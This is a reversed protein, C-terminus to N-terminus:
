SKLNFGMKHLDDWFHPYSKEVVEPDTITINEFRLALAAFAMAMRHDGYTLIESKPDPIESQLSSISLSSNTHDILFGCKNLESRLALLRDSEKIVLNQLGTFSVEVNLGAAVVVLAPALDLSDGLDFGKTSKTGKHNLFKGFSLEEKEKEEKEEERERKEREKGVLIGLEVDESIVGFSKMISDVVCDGQLSELSLGELLVEAEESLAVMEYWYSAASWDPEITYNLLQTIPQNLLQTIHISPYNLQVNYGFQQMMQATMDIYPKSSITGTLELTLDNECAPAIMMLASIFQSSIGADIKIEGGRLKKGKIRLPPFGENKLYEIAAGLERLADVLMHIPRQEMRPDCTLTVEIGEQSAFYATLFRMCTGANKVYIEGGHQQLAQQMIVTDDATSLNHLELSSKSLAKLILARNSISKSAPLRIAGKFIRTPHSIIVHSM